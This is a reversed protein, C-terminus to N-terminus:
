ARERDKRHDHYDGCHNQGSQRLLLLLVLIRVPIRGSVIVVATVLPMFRAIQVARNFIVRESEGELRFECHGPIIAAHYTIQFAIKVLGDGIAALRYFEFGIVGFGPIVAPVRTEVLAIKGARDGIEIARDIEIMAIRLGIVAASVRTMRLFVEVAGDAIVRPGDLDVATERQAPVVTSGSALVLAIQEPGDGIEILRDLEIRVAG